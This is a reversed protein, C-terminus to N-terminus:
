DIKAAYCLRLKQESCNSPACFSRKRRIPWMWKFLSERSTELPKATICIKEAVQEPSGILLAGNRGLLADFHARTVPPWGRERGLRTM